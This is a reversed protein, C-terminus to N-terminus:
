FSSFVGFDIRRPRVKFRYFVESALRSWSSSYPLRYPKTTSGSILFILDQTSTQRGSQSSYKFFSREDNVNRLDFQELAALTGHTHGVEESLLRGPCAEPPSAGELCESSRSTKQDLFDTGQDSDLLLVVYLCYLM